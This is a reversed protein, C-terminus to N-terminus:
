ADGRALLEAVFARMSKRRALVGQTGELLVAGIEGASVPFWGSRDGDAYSGDPGLRRIRITEGDFEWVEVAGIAAYIGLRDQDPRRMDIEIVLDPAPYRTIDKEGRTKLAVVAPLKAPDLYFAADAEIGKNPGPAKWTTSGVALAEIDLAECFVEVFIRLHSGYDEHHISPSMIELEGDDYSIRGGRTRDAIREFTKWDIGSLVIYTDQPPTKSPPM